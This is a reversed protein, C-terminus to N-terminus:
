NVASIIILYKVIRVPETSAPATIRSVKLTYVNPSSIMLYRVYSRQPRVSQMKYRNAVITIPSTNVTLNKYRCLSQKPIVIFDLYIVNPLFIIHIIVLM